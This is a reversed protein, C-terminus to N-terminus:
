CDCTCLGTCTLGVTPHDMQVLAPHASMLTLWLRADQMDVSLCLDAVLSTAQLANKNDSSKHNQATNIEATNSILNM